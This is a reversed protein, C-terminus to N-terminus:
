ELEAFRQQHLEDLRKQEADFMANIMIGLASRLAQSEANRALSDIDELMNNKVRRLTTADKEFQATMTKAKEFGEKTM